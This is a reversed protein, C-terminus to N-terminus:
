NITFTTPGGTVVTDAVNKTGSTTCVIQFWNGTVNVPESFTITVDTSSSQNTAGNTPTTATVSPAQDITFSFAFNSAMNDPPDNPDQDTVQAAFVTVTISEGDAFDVNPNITFTTPGGTVVTDAVNRTGSTSGAIQFWNGTVNVPESFTVTVNTNNAIQTAGNIPTTANVTPAAETSFSFVFNAAMNDPPDDADQDTVQAAFVTVTCTEAAALDANPNITFASPGGTVVTDAVNRTGSTTCVIQFWNGTVNVPESFTVDINVNTNQNAAGNTPTTSAVSPAADTTTFSFVLDATMNDPPDNADQDSVQAAAVTVTCTENQAFDVNPNITFTTPGGTVVTDAVNRTGSSTCVIQFWSGTVNVAESFTITVDTNNPQNTAGNTPTTASVSPPADVNITVQATDNSTVGNTVTYNFTDVGTFGTPPTYLFSGDTNLTVTGGQSTAGGAIAVATPSPIGTDNTLVGPAGVSLPTNQGASFVDAYALPSVKLSGPVLTTNSDITDTFNLDNADTGNNTINVDYTITEGPAAKGDLDPDPFSDVKTASIDPVLPAAASARAAPVPAPATNATRSRSSSIPSAQSLPALPGLIMLSIILCAIITKSIQWRDVFTSNM